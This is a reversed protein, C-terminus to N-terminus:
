SRVKAVIERFPSAQRIADFRPDVALWPLEAEKGDYSASLLSLAEDSNNLAIALLSQRFRSLPTAPSLLKLEDVISMAASVEGCRVLIEAIWAKLSPQAGASRQAQRAIQKAKDQQALQIHILALYLSVELPLSGFRLLEAFHELAEEHRRSLYFFKACAM